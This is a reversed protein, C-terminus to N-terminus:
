EGVVWRLGTILIKEIEELEERLELITGGETRLAEKSVMFDTPRGSPDGQLVLSILNRGEQQAGQGRQSCALLRRRGLFGQWGRHELRWVGKNMRQSVGGHRPVM